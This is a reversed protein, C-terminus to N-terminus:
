RARWTVIPKPAGDMERAHGFCVRYHAICYASGPERDADCFLWPKGDSMPFQCRSLPRAYTYREPMFNGRAIRRPKPLPKTVIPRVIKEPLSQKRGRARRRKLAEAPSMLRIPSPRATLDLSHAKGVVANKSVGLRRGIEATSHGEAWLLRLNAIVEDTWPTDTM